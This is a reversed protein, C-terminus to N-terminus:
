LHSLFPYLFVGSFTSYMEDFDTHALKGGTVVVNVADGAKLHMILHFAGPGGCTHLAGPPRHYELFERRYGATHLQAVSANSVSLVAEVYADREPTLTAAILYRGDYPATFVGTSPNYVDGDNVLVKNFLVVGGDSPFPKQTLGASFSVLSPVPAGPSAVPPSKPYGPAGAFGEASPVTGSGTQAVAGVDGASPVELPPVERNGNGLGRPFCGSAAAREEKSDTGPVLGGPLGERSDVPRLFSLPHVSSAKVTSQEASHCLELEQSIVGMGDHVSAHSISSEDSFESFSHSTTSFPHPTLKSLPTKEFCCNNAKRASPQFKVLDQLDTSIQFVHSYFQQVSNKLSSIDRSHSRLTGNMQRVCNWLSNVHKNLGEKIRQLNGSISDLKSCTKEMHSVRGEVMSVERQVGQTSEKCADLESLLQSQLKQWREELQSCCHTMPHQPFPLTDVTREQEGVKTFGGVGANEGARCNSMEKQLHAVNDETHNLQSYLFSFDQQLKQITRETERFKRHMTDNLSKLLHLNDRVARDETNPLAGEMGHPKGQVNQLCMDEVFQVKDKLHNLEMMVREDGPGSVGPLAAAGPPSLEAGTNNAMHLLVAGLRDELSQIKQDVLQKLDGVEGNITGRLTEEIYFCHEEANKETVNIRADLENWKADFDVDPEPVILRDFENDMRGNLMRTAEAVREIKQDLTKIQQAIDSNKESDCCNAQASPKQLRARLDNIEKRLSTEKEGILEIVGLYSSGYDDCQQQLGTLKYECSNKLDALKRDMGEMLEERLADIKSDVYAQYLEITTMTVTPGQAAEQLQRLQGEYGKVKGDLEELKDSKNKLTDKVEDLESKIDKVGSEKTNFIGPSQATETDGSITTDPKPHQSSLGPARTKSADDQTAHKLNESVGALSSQLDLVTRTLRLVKEELVQIKKEQLEQPGEKPDVGQSPQATGTPSLTKKPESVQSPENDTAKKLSNRPRAPTPQLTKVPEKPGEQCDGGRFGPCCRWELQTVTKYRTVYRPRFNVRYRHICPIANWACLCQAQIFSESGELVSCSVNKNVIYACWNRPHLLSLTFPVTYVQLVILGPSLPRCGWVARPDPPPGDGEASAPAEYLLRRLTGPHAEPSRASRLEDEPALYSSYLRM